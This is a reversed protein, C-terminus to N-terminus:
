IHNLCRHWSLLYWGHLSAFQCSNHPPILQHKEWVVVIQETPPEIYYVFPYVITIYHTEMWPYQTTVPRHDKIHPSRCISHKYFGQLCLTCADNAFLSLHLLWKGAIEGMDKIIKNRRWMNHFIKSCVHQSNFMHVMIIRCLFGLSYAVRVDCLGIIRSNMWWLNSTVSSSQLDDLVQYYCNQLDV